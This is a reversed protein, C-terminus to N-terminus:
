FFIYDKCISKILMLILILYTNLMYVTSIRNINFYYIHLFIYFKYISM